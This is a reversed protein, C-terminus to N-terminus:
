DADKKSRQPFPREEDFTPTVQTFVEKMVDPWIGFEQALHILCDLYGKQFETTAPHDKFMSGQEHLWRMLTPNSVM